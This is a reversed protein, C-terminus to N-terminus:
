KQKQLPFIGKETLLVDVKVDYKGKPVHNEIFDSYCLGVTVGGFESLFRDYFGRGYGLRYGFKDYALGPVICVDSNNPVYARDPTPELIGLMGEKLEAISSVYYYNMVHDSECRPYLLKKGDALAKEAIAWTSIEDSTSAYLLIQTCSKYVITSTLVSAIKDERRTKEEPLLKEREARYKARLENKVSRLSPGRNEGNM